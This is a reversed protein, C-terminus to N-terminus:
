FASDLLLEALRKGLVDQGSWQGGSPIGLCGDKSGM